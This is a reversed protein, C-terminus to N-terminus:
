LPCMLLRFDLKSRPIGSGLSVVLCWLGPLVGDGGRWLGWVGGPGVAIAGWGAESPLPGWTARAEGEAM